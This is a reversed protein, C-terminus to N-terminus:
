ITGNTNVGLDIEVEGKFNNLKKRTQKCIM